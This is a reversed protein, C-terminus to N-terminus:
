RMILVRRECHSPSRICGTQSSLVQAAEEAAKKNAVAKKAQWVLVLQLVAFGPSPGVGVCIKPPGFLDFFFGELNQACQV